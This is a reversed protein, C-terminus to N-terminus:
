FLILILLNYKSLKFNYNVWTKNKFNYDAILYFIDKVDKPLPNNNKPLKDTEGKIYAMLEDM